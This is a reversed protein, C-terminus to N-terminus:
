SVARIRYCVYARPGSNLKDAQINADKKNYIMEEKTVPDKYYGEFHDDFYKAVKYKGFPNVERLYREYSAKKAEEYDTFYENSESERITRTGYTSSCWYDPEEELNYSDNALNTMHAIRLVADANDKVEHVLLQSLVGKYEVRWFVKGIDESTFEKQFDVKNM